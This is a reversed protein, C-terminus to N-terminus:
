LLGQRQLEERDKRSQEDQLRMLEDYPLDKWTKPRESEAAQAPEDEWRAGNLYTAPYPIYKEETWETDSNVRRRVDAIIIQKLEDSPKLKTWARLASKKDVCRPYVSWFDDFGAPNEKAANKRSISIDKSVDTSIDTNSPVDENGRESMETDVHTRKQLITYGKETIAYWTPRKYRDTNYDGTIIIGDSILKDMATKVQRESLYPFLKTYAERSNYTWYYGDHYHRKNAKNKQIWWFINQLLIAANIGYKVAIDVDFSHEM